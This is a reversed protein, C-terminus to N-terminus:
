LGLTITGACVEDAYEEFTTGEDLTVSESEGAGSVTVTGDGNDCVSIPIGILSCERCNGGDDDSGCATLGLALICVAVYM